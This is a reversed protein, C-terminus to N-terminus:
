QLTHAKTQTQILSAHHATLLWGVAGRRYVNTALVTAFTYQDTAIQEEVMHVALMDDLDKKIVNVRIDPLGANSFIQAWSRM